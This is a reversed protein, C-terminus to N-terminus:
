EYVTALYVTDGEYLAETADYKYFQGNKDRIVLKSVPNVYEYRYYGENFALPEQLVPYDTHTM